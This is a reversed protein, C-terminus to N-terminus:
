HESESSKMALLDALIMKLVELSHCAITSTKRKRICCDYCEPSRRVLAQTCHSWSRGQPLQWLAPLGSDHTKSVNCLPRRLATRCCFRSSSSSRLVVSSFSNAVIRSPESASFWCIIAFMLLPGDRSSRTECNSSLLMEPSSRAWPSRLKSVWSVM